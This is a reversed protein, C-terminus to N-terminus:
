EERYTCINLDFSLIKSSQTEDYSRQILRHYGDCKNSHDRDGILSIRDEINVIAKKNKQLTFRTKLINVKKSLALDATRIKSSGIPNRGHKGLRIEDDDFSPFSGKPKRNAKTALIMLTM